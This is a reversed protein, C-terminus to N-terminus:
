RPGTNYEFFKRYNERMIEATYHTLYYERSRRGYERRLTDDSLLRLLADALGREFEATATRGAPNSRSAGSHGIKAVVANEGDHFMNKVSYGDSAVVPLGHMMMEMGAYSCEEYYSPFVGIDAIRYWRRVDKPELRGTFTIKAWIDRGERLFLSNQMDGVLVMRCGPYRRVVRNFAGLLPKVGKIDLIRGVFLIVKEEPALLFRKRILIRQRATTKRYTDEKGNPILAINGPAVGCGDEMMARTDESLCVIRDAIDAM